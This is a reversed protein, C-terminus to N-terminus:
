LLQVLEIRDPVTEDGAFPCSLLGRKFPETPFLLRRTKGFSLDCLPVGVSCMIDGAGEVELRGTGIHVALAYLKNEDQVYYISGSDGNVTFPSKETQWPVLICPMGGNIQVGGASVVGYKWSGYKLTYGSGAGLKLM